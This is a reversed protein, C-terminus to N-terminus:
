RSSRQRSSSMAEIGRGSLPPEVQDGHHGALLPSSPRRASRNGSRSRIAAGVAPPVVACAIYARLRDASVSVGAASEYAGLFVVALSPDVNALDWTPRALEELPDGVTGEGLDFLGSVEGDICVTNDPKLDHHLYTPVVDDLDDPM